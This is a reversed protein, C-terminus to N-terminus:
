IYERLIKFVRWEVGNEGDGDDGSDDGSKWLLFSDKRSSVGLTEESSGEITEQFVRTTEDRLDYTGATAAVM